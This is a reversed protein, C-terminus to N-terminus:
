FFDSYRQILHKPWIFWWPYAWAMTESWVCLKWVKSFFTDCKPSTIETLLFFFGAYHDQWLQQVFLVMEYYYKFCSMEHVWMVYPYWFCEHGVEAFCTMFRVCCDPLLPGPLHNPDVKHLKVKKHCHIGPFYVTTYAYWSASLSNCDVCVPKHLFFWVLAVPENHLEKPHQCMSELLCEQM